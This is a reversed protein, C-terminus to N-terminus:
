FMQFDEELEHGNQGGGPETSGLNSFVTLEPRWPKAPDGATNMAITTRIEYFKRAPAAFRFHSV